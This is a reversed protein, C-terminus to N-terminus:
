EKKTNKKESPKKIPKQEAVIEKAVEKAVEKITEFIGPFLEEMSMQHTTKEDNEAKAEKYMKLADKYNWYMQISVNNEQANKAGLIGATLAAITNLNGFLFAYEEDTKTTKMKEEARNGIQYLVRILTDTNILNNNM